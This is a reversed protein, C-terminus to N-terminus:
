SKLMEAVGVFASMFVPDEDRDVMVRLDILQNWPVIPNDYTETGVPKDQLGNLGALM